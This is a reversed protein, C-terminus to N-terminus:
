YAVEKEKGIGTARRRRGVMRPWVGPEPGPSLGSFIRFCRVFIPSFPPM